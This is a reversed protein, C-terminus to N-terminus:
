LVNEKDIDEQYTTTVFRVGLPLVEANQEDTAVGKAFKIYDSREFLERLADRLQPDLDSQALSAFIESSTMEMAGIGYRSAMYERLADTVGSYFAKQRAPAWFKDGRWADLKRLAVIHAPDKHQAEEQLRRRRRLLYVALAVLLAAGLAIGMYPLVETFTVPYRIQDKLEHMVFTATDVPITTVLIDQGKFSLTDIVGDPRKIALTVDPLRWEGEEFSTMVMAARIDRTREKRRTKLTDVSWERVIEVPCGEGQIKVKPLLLSSGDPVAELVAGYLFQDAILISDRKQLPQLFADQALASASSLFLVAAFIAAIRTRKM